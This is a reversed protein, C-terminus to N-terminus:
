GRKRFRGIVAGVGAGLGAFVIAGLLPSAGSAGSSPRLGKFSPRIRFSTGATAAAIEAQSLGALLAAPVSQGSRAMAAIKSLQEFRATIDARAKKDVAYSPNVTSDWRRAMDFILKSVPYPHKWMDWWSVEVNKWGAASGPDPVKILETKIGVTKVTQDASNPTLVKNFLLVDLGNPDSPLYGKKFTDVLLDLYVPWLSAGGDSGEVEHQVQMVLRMVRFFLRRELPIGIQPGLMARMKSLWLNYYPAATTTGPAVGVSGAIVSNPHAAAFAAFDPPQVNTNTGSTDLGGELLSILAAGLAPRYLHPKKRPKKFCAGDYDPFRQFAFFDAPVLAGGPGTGMPSLFQALARGGYCDEDEEAAQQLKAAIAADMDAVVSKGFTLITSYIPVIAAADSSSVALANLIAPQIAMAASVAYAMPTSKAEAALRQIEGSALLASVTSTIGTVIGLSEPSLVAAIKSEVAERAAKVILGKAEAPTPSGAVSSAEAALKSLSETPTM